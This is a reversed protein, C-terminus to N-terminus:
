YAAWRTSQLRGVIRLAPLAPRVPRPALAHGAYWAALATNVAVSAASHTRLADRVSRAHLRLARRQRYRYGIECARREASGVDTAAWTKRLLRAQFEVVKRRDGTLNGSRIRYWATQRDLEVFSGHRSMRLYMEWDGQARFAPDYRGAAEIASRRFLMSAPPYMGNTVVLDALGAGSGFEAPVVKRGEVRFKRRQVGPHAGRRIERGDEDIYEALSQVGVATPNADLARTLTELADPLWVDDGDLVAVYPGDDVTRALLRNRAVSVGTNEQRLVSFRTDRDAFEQAIAATRDTSGDDIIQCRWDTFTQALVSSLTESLWREANHVALVITVRTQVASRQRNHMSEATVPQDRPGAGGAGGGTRGSRAQDRVVARRLALVMPRRDVARRPDAVPPGPGGLTAALVAGSRAARVALRPDRHLVAWVVQRVSMALAATQVARWGARVASRQEATNTPHEWAKRRVRDLETIMLDWTDATASAAHQRYECVVEDLFVLPGRRALRLYYDWDEGIRLSEDFAGTARVDPARFLGVAPPWIRGAVALSAFDTDVHLPLLDIRGRVLTPRGRLRAEQAGIAVPQGDEDVHRALATVGVAEPRGALASRLRSLASPAWLDDSDLFAVTDVGDPLNDLGTNRAASVGGNARSVVRFRSDGATSSKVVSLTGDTSGDDVVVCCWDSETQDILSRIADGIWREANYAPVVIATRSTAM